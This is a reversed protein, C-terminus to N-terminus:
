KCDTGLYKKNAIQGWIQIPLKDWTNKIPLTDGYINKLPLTDWYVQLRLINKVTFCEECVANSINKRGKRKERKKERKKEGKENRGKTYRKKRNRNCALCPLSLLYELIKKYSTL